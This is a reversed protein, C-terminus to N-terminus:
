SRFRGGPRTREDFAHGCYRCAQSAMDIRSGCQPCVRTPRVVFRMALLCLLLIGGLVVLYSGLTM